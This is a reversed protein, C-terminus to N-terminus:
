IFLPYLVASSLSLIARCTCGNWSQTDCPQWHLQAYVCRLLERQHLSLAAVNRSSVMNRVGDMGSWSEPGFALVHRKNSWYREPIIYRLCFLALGISMMGYVGMMSAHVHNATLGTGVEYYSVIPLNVLFGFVGAGLFNWFGVAALFM